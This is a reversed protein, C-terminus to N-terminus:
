GSDKQAFFKKTKKRLNDASMAEVQHGIMDKIEKWSKGFLSMIGQPLFMLFVMLLVGYLIMRLQANGVRLWEPLTTLLMSGLIAGDLSGVGGIIAMSILTLSYRWRFQDPSLFGIYQGFLAGAIGGIFSALAFAILKYKVTNIGCSQAAPEYNKISLFFRGYKSRLVNKLLIYILIMFVTAVIFLVDKERLSFGFISDYPYKSLGLSGGTLEGGNLFVICIMEGFVQTVLALYPGGRLKLAPIGVLLGFVASVLAALPICIWMSLGLRVMIITSTYAGLGIFAAQGLHSQNTYGTVIVIGMVAIANIMAQAGIVTAYSSSLFYGILAALFVSRAINPHKSLYQKM